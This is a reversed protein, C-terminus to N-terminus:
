KIEEKESQKVVEFYRYVECEWAIIGFYGEHYSSEEDFDEDKLALNYSQEWLRNMADIAEKETDYLWLNTDGAEGVYYSVVAYKM